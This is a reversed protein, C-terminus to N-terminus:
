NSSAFVPPDARSPGFGETPGGRSTADLGRVGDVNKSVLGRDGMEVYEKVEDPGLLSAHGLGAGAYLGDSFGKGKVPIDKERSRSSVDGTPSGGGACSRM